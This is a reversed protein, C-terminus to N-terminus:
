KSASCIFHEAFFLPPRICLSDYLEKMFKISEKYRKRKAKGEPLVFHEKLRLNNFNAYYLVHLLSNVTFGCQHTFDLYRMRLNFPFEMNPVTVVIKGGKKLSKYILKLFASIKEKPIHELVCTLIVLDYRSKKYKLFDFADVKKAKKIGFRNVIDLKHYDFDIGAINEYGKKDLYYLFWGFGCGLELINAKKDRPLYESYLKEYFGLYYKCSKLYSEKKDIEWRLKIGSDELCKRFGIENRRM